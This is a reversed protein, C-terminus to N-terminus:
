MRSVRIRTPTVEVKVGDLSRLFAVLMEPDDISFVGSIQLSGLESTEIEIPKESYRNFEAAVNALSQREFVIQRRLWATARQVNASTAETPVQGDMVRTQEGEGVTVSQRLGGATSVAVRGEVVTVLTSGTQRYVDFTTGLALVSATGALVRFPRAPDHVDQFLVEGREIEILRESRSYRVTVTTDTNLRLTSHDALSWTRLEGHRTAYHEATARNGNWWLLAVGIIALAAPVAAWRCHRILRALAGEGRLSRAAADGPMAVAGAERTVRGLVAELPMEPDAVAVPLNRSILAVGLYEEVHVPSTALWAYFARQATADLPGDRHAIFWEGAQVAIIERVQEESTTM